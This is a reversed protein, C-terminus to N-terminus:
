LFKVSSALWRGHIKRLVIQMGFSDPQGNPASTNKVLRDLAVIVTAGKSGAGVLGASKVEATSVAKAKIVLDQIGASQSAYQTRLAGTTENVVRDFDQQLHRYDYAAFDVAIQRGAALAQERLSSADERHSLQRAGVAALGAAATCLVLAATGVIVSARAASSPRAHPALPESM